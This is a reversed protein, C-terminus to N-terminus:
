ALVKGEPACKYWEFACEVIQRGKRLPPSTDTQFSAIIFAAGKCDSNLAECSYHLPRMTILSVRAPTDGEYLATWPSQQKKRV